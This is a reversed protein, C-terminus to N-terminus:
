GAFASREEQTDKPANWLGVEEEDEVGECVGGHAVLNKYRRERKKEEKKEGRESSENNKRGKQDGRKRM